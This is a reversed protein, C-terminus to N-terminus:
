VSRQRGGMLVAQTRGQGVRSDGLVAKSVGDASGPYAKARVATARGGDASGPYAEAGKRSDVLVAKAGM